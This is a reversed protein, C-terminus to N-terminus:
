PYTIKTNAQDLSCQGEEDHIDHFLYLSLYVLLFPVLVITWSKHM